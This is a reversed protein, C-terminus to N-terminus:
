KLIEEIEDATYGYETLIEEDTWKRTWDVRPIALDITGCSKNLGKILKNMLGDKGDRYWFETFNDKEQKTNFFIFGGQTMFAGSQKTISFVSNNKNIGLNWIRDIADDTLHVGHDATRRYVFFDTDWIIKNLAERIEQETKCGQRYLYCYNINNERNLNERYFKVLKPNYKCMELEEFSKM